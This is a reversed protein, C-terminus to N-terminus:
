HLRAGLPAYASYCLLSFVPHRKLTSVGGWKSYLNLLLQERCYCRVKMRWLEPDCLVEELNGGIRLAHTYVEVAWNARPRGRRRKKSLISLEASGSQFVLRRRPDRNDLRFLKGFYLLQQELLLNSLSVANVRSLVEKNSVRSQYM